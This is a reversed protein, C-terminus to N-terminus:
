NRHKKKKFNIKFNGVPLILSPPYKNVQQVKIIVVQKDLLLEPRNCYYLAATFNLNSNRNLTVQLLEFDFKKKLSVDGKSFKDQALEFYDNQGVSYCLNDFQLNPDFARLSYILTNVPIDELVDQYRVSDGIFKPTPNSASRVFRFDVLCETSQTDYVLDNVEVVVLISTYISTNRQLILELQGNRSNIKFYLAFSNNVIEYRGDFRTREERNIKYNIISNSDSSYAQLRYFTTNDISVFKSPCSLKRPRLGEISIACSIQSVYKCDPYAM